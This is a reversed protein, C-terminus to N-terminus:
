WCGMVAHQETSHVDTGAMMGHHHMPVFDNCHSKCAAENGSQLAHELLHDNVGGTYRLGQSLM